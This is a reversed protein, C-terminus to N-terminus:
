LPGIVPSGEISLVGANLDTHITGPILGLTPMAQYNAESRMYKIQSVFDDVSVAGRRLLVRDKGYALGLFVGLFWSIVEDKLGQPFNLYLFCADDLFILSPDM